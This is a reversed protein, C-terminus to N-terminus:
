KISFNPPRTYLITETDFFLTGWYFIFGNRIWRYQKKAMISPHGPPRGEILKPNLEEGSAAYLMRMLSYM